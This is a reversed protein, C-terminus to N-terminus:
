VPDKPKSGLENIQWQLKETKTTYDVSKRSFGLDRKRLDTIRTRYIDALANLDAPKMAEHQSGL